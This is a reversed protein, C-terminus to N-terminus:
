EKYQLEALQISMANIKKDMENLLDAQKQIKRHQTKILEQQEQIAKIAIVGLKSYSIGLMDDSETVLEPFSLRMDQAIFGLTYKDSSANRKYQYTTPKLELVKNLVSELPAINKKLRFDSTAVYDGTVDNIYGVRSGDVAFNLHNSLDLYMNWVGVRSLDLRLGSTPGKNNQKLHLVSIPEIVGVGLNVAEPGTAGIVACNSCDVKANFGLAMANTLSDAISWNGTNSGIFTNQSGLINGSGASHGVFVNQTGKVSLFGSSVGFYSNKSGQRHNWGSHSGFFSNSGDISSRGALYGYFSNYSGTSLAGAKSGFISNQSGFTNNKGARYGYYSNDEAFYMGEGAMSGVLTSKSQTPEDDDGGRSRSAFQYIFEGAKNGIILLTSDLSHHVNMRGIVKTNGEIETLFEQAMIDGTFILITLSIIIKYITM